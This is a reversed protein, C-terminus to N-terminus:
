SKKNNAARLRRAGFIVGVLGVAVLMITGMGQGGTVDDFLGTDPM